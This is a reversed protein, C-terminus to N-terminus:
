VILVGRDINAQTDASVVVTLHVLLIGTPNSRALSPGLHDSCWLVVSALTALVSLRGVGLMGQSQPASLSQM